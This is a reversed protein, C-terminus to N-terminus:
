LQQITEPYFRKYMKSKKLNRLSLWMYVNQTTKKYVVYGLGKSLRLTRKNDVSCYTRVKYGKELIRQLILAYGRCYLIPNSWGGGHISIIRENDYEKLIYVFAIPRNDFCRKLVYCYAFQPNATLFDAWEKDSHIDAVIHCWEDSSFRSCLIEGQAYPEWRILHDEVNALSNYM